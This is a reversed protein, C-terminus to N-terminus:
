YASYRGNFEVKDYIYEPKPWSVYIQEKLEGMEVNGLTTITKELEFGSVSWGLLAGARVREFGLEDLVENLLLSGRQFLRTQLKENISDIYAVNYSHDDAAYHESDSWWVGITKDIEARVDELKTSVKGDKGVTEVEVKETPTMFKAFAKDGHTERYKNEMYLNQAQQAALAGTLALIRKRQIQHAMLICVGSALGVTIPLYLASVLDKGVQVHDIEEGNARAEEINEVVLEVDDKSKYALYATFGLGIIGAGTFIAPSHKSVTRGVKVMTQKITM